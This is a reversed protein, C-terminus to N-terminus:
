RAKGNLPKWQSVEYHMPPIEVKRDEVEIIATGDEKIELPTHEAGPDGSFVTLRIRQPDCTEGGGSGVSQRLRDTCHSVLCQLHTCSDSLEERFRDLRHKFNAEM